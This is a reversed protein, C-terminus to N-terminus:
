APCLLIAIVDTGMRVFASVLGDRNNELMHLYILREAITIVLAKTIYLGNFNKLMTPPNNNKDPATSPIRKKIKMAM